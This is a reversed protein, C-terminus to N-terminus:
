CPAPGTLGLCARFVSVSDGGGPLRDPKHRPDWLPVAVQRAGRDVGGFRLPLSNGAHRGLRDSSTQANKECELEHELLATILFSSRTRTQFVIKAPRVGNREM